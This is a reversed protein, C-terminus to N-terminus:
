KSPLGTFARRYAELVKIRADVFTAWCNSRAASLMEDRSVAVTYACSDSAFKTWSKEAAALLEAANEDRNRVVRLTDNYAADLRQQNLDYLCSYVQSMNEAGKECDRALAPTALCSFM